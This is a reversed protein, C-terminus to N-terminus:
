PHVASGNLATEPKQGALSQMKRLSPCRRLLRREAVNLASPFPAPCHTLPLVPQQETLHFSPGKTIPFSSTTTLKKIRMVIRNM